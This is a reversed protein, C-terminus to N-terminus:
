NAWDGCPDPTWPLDRCVQHQYFSLTLNSCNPNGPSDLRLNGGSIRRAIGYATGNGPTRDCVTWYTGSKNSFDDGLWSSGANAMVPTLGMVSFLALISLIGRANTKLVTYM